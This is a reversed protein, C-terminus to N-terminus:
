LCAVNFANIRRGFESGSAPMLLALARVKM